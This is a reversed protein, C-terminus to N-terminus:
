DKICRIPLKSNKDNDRFSSSTYPKGTITLARGMTASTDSASATWVTGSYGCATAVFRFGSENTGKYGGVGCDWSGDGSKLRTLSETELLTKFDSTDALHYGEPCVDQAEEWTYTRGVDDVPRGAITGSEATEIKLNDALWTQSRITIVCYESDDRPDNLTDTYNYDSFIYVRDGRPGNETSIQAYVDKRGATGDMTWIVEAIGSSDTTAQSPSVSGFDTSFTVTAGEYPNGNLTKVLFRMPDELPLNFRGTQNDGSIVMISFAGSGDNATANVTLPDNDLSNIFSESKVELSQIGATKGLTWNVTAIGNDDSTVYSSSVSGESVSFKLEYGAFPQDNNGLVMVEIPASLKTEVEGTQEGGSHLKLSAPMTQKLVAYIPGSSVSFSGDNYIIEFDFGEDWNNHSSAFTLKLDNITGSLGGSVNNNDLVNVSLMNIDFATSEISGSEAYSPPNTEDPLMSNWFDIFESFGTIFGSLWTNSDYADETKDVNRLLVGYPVSQPTAHYFVPTGKKMNFVEISIPKFYVTSLSNGVNALLKWVDNWILKSAALGLWGGASGGLLYGGVVPISSGTITYTLAKVYRKMEYELEEPSLTNVRSKLGVTNIDIKNLEQIIQTYYKTNAQIFKAYVVQDSPDLNDFEALMESYEASLDVNTISDAWGYVYEVPNDIVEADQVFLSDYYFQDQILAYFAHNGNQVDPIVLSALTDNVKVIQIRSSDLLALPNYGTLTGDQIDILALENVLLTDILFKIGKSVPFAVLITDSYIPMCTGETIKARYYTTSDIRIIQISDAEQLQLSDWKMLNTSYEWSIEGRFDNTKLIIPQEPYILTDKKHIVIQSFLSIQSFSAVFVLIVIYINRNIM